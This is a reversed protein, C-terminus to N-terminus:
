TSPPSVLFPTIPPPYLSFSRGVGIPGWTRITKNKADKLARGSYRVISHITFAPLGMSAIGQFAAREVMVSRWDELAPVKGPGLQGLQRELGVDLKKGAKEAETQAAALPNLVRQNRCWAKYGELAVDGTLYAWSIAYASRM